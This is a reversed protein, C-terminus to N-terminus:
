EAINLEAKYLNKVWVKEENTLKTYYFKERNIVEFGEDDLPTMNSVIIINIGFSQLVYERYLEFSFLPKKLKILEELDQWTGNTNINVKAINAM